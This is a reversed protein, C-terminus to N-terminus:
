DRACQSGKDGSHPGPECAVALAQLLQEDSLQAPDPANVTNYLTHAMAEGPGSPSVIQSHSSQSLSGTQFFRHRGNESSLTVHPCLSPNCLRTASSCELNDHPGM